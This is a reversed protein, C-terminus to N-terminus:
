LLRELLQDLQRFIACLKKVSGRFFHVLARGARFCGFPGTSYVCVLRMPPQLEATGDDVTFLAGVSFAISRLFPVLSLRLALPSAEDLRYVSLSADKDLKALYVGGEDDEPLAKSKEYDYLSV